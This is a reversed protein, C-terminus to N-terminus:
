RGEVRATPTQGNQAQQSREAFMAALRELLPMDYSGTTYGAGHEIRLLTTGVQIVTTADSSSVEYAMSQDGTPAMALRKGDNEQTVVQYGQRATETSDFGSIEFRAWARNPGRFEAAGAAKPCNPNDGCPRLEPPSATTWGTPMSSLDPLVAQANANSLVAARNGDPGSFVKAGGYVSLALVVALTLLLLITKSDGQRTINTIKNGVTINRAPGKGGTFTNGSSNVSPAGYPSGPPSTPKPPVTPEPPAPPLWNGVDAAFSQDSGLVESLVRGLLLRRAQDSPVSLFSDLASVGGDLPQLRRRTTDILATGTIAGGAMGEKDLAARALANLLASVLASLDM